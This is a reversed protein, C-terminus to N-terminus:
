KHVVVIIHVAQHLLAILQQIMLDQQTSLRIGTINLTDGDADTDNSLVDGTHDGHDSNNDTDAAIALGGTFPSTSYGDNASAGNAVTM